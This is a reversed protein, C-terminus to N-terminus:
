CNTKVNNTVVDGPKNGGWKAYKGATVVVNMNLNLESVASLTGIVSAAGCMDYKMEDM